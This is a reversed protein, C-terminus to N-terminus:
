GGIQYMPRDTRALTGADTGRCQRKAAVAARVLAALEDDSGGTRLLDRVNWEDRAFLCNRLKGEATLRLRSCRDCFPRSVTRILGIRAGGEVFRYLTAPSHCDPEVVPELPGIGAALRRLIEPAPLVMDAAWRDDGDLPMFEIFRLELGRSQAFLALPVIDPETRGRIAVVNLKVQRFGARCAADIGCLVEGLEDRRAIQQFRGPDLTDLSVNLRQVGAARLADAYQGLLIGNTTMALDDIGPVAAIMEVLRCLGKRVLPEGGTLRVRRIGLQVAVRVFREIEEFRLIADHPKFEVGGAPMCYFCRMNCRDTVSVRLDTHVRGFSDILPGATSL